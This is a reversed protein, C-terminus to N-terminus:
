SENSYTLIAFVMVKELKRGVIAKDWWGIWVRYKATTIIKLFMRKKADASVTRTITERTKPYQDKSTQYKVTLFCKLHFRANRGGTMIINKGYKKMM